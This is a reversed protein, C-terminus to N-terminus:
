YNNGQIITWITMPTVNSKNVMSSLRKPQRVRVMVIVIDVCKGAGEM